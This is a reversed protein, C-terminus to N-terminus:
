RIYFLIIQKVPIGMFKMNSQFNWYPAKEHYTNHQSIGASANEKVVLFLLKYCGKAPITVHYM